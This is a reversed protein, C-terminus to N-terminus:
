LQEGRLTAWASGQNEYLLIASVKDGKNVKLNQEMCNLKHKLRYKQANEKGTDSVITLVVYGVADDSLSEVEVVFNKLQLNLLSKFSFLIVGSQCTVAHGGVQFPIAQKKNLTDNCLGLKNKIGGLIGDISLFKEEATSGQIHKM